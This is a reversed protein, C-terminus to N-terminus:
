LFRSLVNAILGILNVFISVATVWINITLAYDRNKDLDKDTHEDREMTPRRSYPIKDLSVKADLQDASM